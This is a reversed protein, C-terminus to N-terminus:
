RTPRDLERQRLLWASFLGLAGGYLVLLVFASRLADGWSVLIGDAMLSLPSTTVAPAVLHELGRIMWESARQLGTRAAINEPAALMLSADPAAIFYHGTRSLLILASASFSAVPFSFCTGAALGVAGLLGLRCFVVFLARWYNPLFGSERIRMEIGDDVDFVLTGADADAAHTYTLRLAQGPQVLGPPLPLRGVANHYDRLRGTWPTGTGDLRELSWSGRDPGVGALGPRCRMRITVTADRPMRAPVDLVWAHTTGPAVTSREALLQRRIIALAEDRPLLEARWGRRAHDALQREAELSVDEPRPQVRRQGVLVQEALARREAEGAPAARLKWRLLGATGVGVLGLLLAAVAMLGIWKGLWIEFAYVPRVATLRMHGNAIDRAIGGCANWLLAIGLLLTALGLTYDLLVRAIGELTGDASITAPLGFTVLALLVVMSLLLRSRVAARFALVAIAGVRGISCRVSSAGTM